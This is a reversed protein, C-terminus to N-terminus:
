IKWKSTRAEVSAVLGQGIVGFDELIAEVNPILKGEGNLMRGPVASIKFPQPEFAKPKWLVGVCKGGYHDYFFLALDGYADRLAQVYCSVVDVGVVPFLLKLVPKVSVGESYDVGQYANPIRAEDLHILVDYPDLPARFIQKVDIDVPCSIQQELVQLSAKALAVLRCLIQGTPAQRTWPSLHNGDFPTTIFMAPLTSRSNIFTSQVEACKEKTLKDAFDVILPQTSWDHNVLLALFRQFAVRPSNPVAYPAPTLYVSAVLIEVCEDPVHGYLFQASVWRKALRCAAGFTGHQQQLGHLSSTLGPLRETLYELHLSAETDKMKVMGDPTVQVKALTIEKHCAIRVRFVFGEKLIDIYGPRVLTPLSCQQKLEKALAIHFAAKVRQLADLDDPWKGSAEMHVIVEVPIVLHHFHAKTAVPLLYKDDVTYAMGFDTSLVGKFPPFVETSRLVASIGQVSSVELPLDSLKRLQKSFEDYTKIVILNTEEGTGYPARQPWTVKSLRLVPDLFDGVCTVGEVHVYQRLLYRVISLVIERQECALKANWVVAELISGDQFRRLESRDGWFNRFELAEPADAPPGKDVLNYCEPSNLIIGFDVSAEPEPPTVNLGWEPSATLRASLLSIRRNLGRRLISCVAHAAVYSENGDADALQDRLTLSDLASEIDSKDLRVFLDFTRYFPVRTMFLAQFSDASCSDLFTIALHAEHKVRLYSEVSTRACLNLFGSPDVFVLPYHESFEEISPQNQQSESCLSIPEEMWDSQSLSLLVYRMAQYSSMM